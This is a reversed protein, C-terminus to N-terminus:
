RVWATLTLNTMNASGDYVKTGSSTMTLSKAAVDYSGVIHINNSFDLSNVSVSTADLSYSGVKLNGSTSTIVANNPNAPGLNFQADVNTGSDLVTVQAGSVSVRGATSLLNTVANANDMFAATTITYTPTGGYTTSVNQVKVLLEGAPVITYNGNVFSIQYNSSTLGAPVLVSTYTTAGDQDATGSLGTRDRTVSLVGGLAASNQGGVFGSYRVGAYGATDNQSYFKADDNATITLPAQTITAAPATWVLNYNGARTGTLLVSGQQVTVSGANASSFVPTGTIVLGGNIASDATLASANTAVSLAGYGTAPSTLPLHQGLHNADYVKTLGTDGSLAM